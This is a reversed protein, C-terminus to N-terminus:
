GGTADNTACRTGSDNDGVDGATHHYHIYGNSRNPRRVSGHQAATGDSGAAGVGSRVFLLFGVSFFAAAANIPGRDM